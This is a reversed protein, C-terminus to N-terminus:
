TIIVSIEGRKLALQLGLEHASRPAFDYHAAEKDMLEKTRTSLLWQKFTLKLSPKKSPASEAGEFMSIHPIFDPYNSPPVGLEQLGEDIEKQLKMLEPSTVTMALTGDGM